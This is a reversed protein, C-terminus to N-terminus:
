AEREYLNMDSVMAPRHEVPPLFCPRWHTAQTIEKGRELGIIRGGWFGHPPKKIAVFGPGAGPVFVYVWKGAPM